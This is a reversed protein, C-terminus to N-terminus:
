GAMMKGVASDFGPSLPRGEPQQGSEAGGSNGGDEGPVRCIIIDPSAASDGVPGSGPSILVPILGQDRCEEETITNGSRDTHNIPDFRVYSYRNLSLPISLNMPGKDPSNMRGRSNEYYRAMAYDLLSEQDRQYTTFKKDNTSAVEPLWAEGYPLTRNNEIV